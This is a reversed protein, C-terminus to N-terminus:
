LKAVRKVQTHSATLKQNPVDRAFAEMINRPARDNTWLSLILDSTKEFGNSLYSQGFTRNMSSPNEWIYSSICLERMKSAIEDYKVTLMGETAEPFRRFLYNRLVFHQIVEGLFSCSDDNGGEDNNRQLGGCTQGSAKPRSAKLEFELNDFIEKLNKPAEEGRWFRKVFAKSVELGNDEYIAAILAEVYDAKRKERLITGKSLNPSLKLEQSIKFLNLDESIPAIQANEVLKNCTARLKSTSLHPYDCWLMDTIIFKLIADGLFELRENGRSSLTHGNDTARHRLALILIEPDNFKYGISKQLDSFIPNRAIEESEPSLKIAVSSKQKILSQQTLQARGTKPPTHEASLNNNKCNSAFAVFHGSYLAVLVAVLLWKKTIKIM